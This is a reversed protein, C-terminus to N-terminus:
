SMVKYTAKIKQAYEKALVELSKDAVNDCGTKM